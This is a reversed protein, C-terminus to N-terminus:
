SELNDPTIGEAELYTATKSAVVRELFNGYVSQLTIIRYSSLRCAIEDVILIRDQPKYKGASAPRQSVPVQWFGHSHPSSQAHAPLLAAALSCLVM